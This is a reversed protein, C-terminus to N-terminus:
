HQKLKKTCCGINRKPEFHLINQCVCYAPPIGRTRPYPVYKNVEICSSRHRVHGLAEFIPTFIQLDVTFLSYPIGLQILEM